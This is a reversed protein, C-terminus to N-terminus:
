CEADPRVVTGDDPPLLEALDIGKEQAVKALWMEYRQATATAGEARGVAEGKALGVAEGKALGVAEGKARGIAEGEARGIAAGEARLKAQVKKHQDWAWFMLRISREVAVAAMAYFVAGLDVLSAALRWGEPGPWQWQELYLALLMTAAFVGFPAAVAHRRM